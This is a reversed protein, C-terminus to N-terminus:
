TGPNDKQCTSDPDASLLVRVIKKSDTDFAPVESCYMPGQRTMVRLAANGITLVFTLWAFVNGPLHDQVIRLSVEAAALCAVLGNFWLVKSQYWVKKSM